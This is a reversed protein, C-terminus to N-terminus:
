DAYRRVAVFWRGTHIAQGDLEAALQGPEFVRKFVRWTSGDSLRREEHREYEDGPGRRSAVVVLEPAVRRAEALFLEREAAELHCYFYSAFVRDFSADAFPLAFADGVVFRAHPGRARAIEVMAASQDIGVVDGRLHRTLYGTGCAVDLVRAPGLSRVTEVLARLEDGWGERSWAARRWWDDYEAARAHYYAKV